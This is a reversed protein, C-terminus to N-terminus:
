NEYEENTIFKYEEASIWRGVADWVMEKTWIGRDYYSKVRDFYQIVMAAICGAIIGILFASM